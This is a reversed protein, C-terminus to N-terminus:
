QTDDIRSNQAEKKRPLPSHPFQVQGSSDVAPYSFTSSPSPLYPRRLTYRVRQRPPYYPSGNIQIRVPDRAAVVSPQRLTHQAHYPEQQPQPGNVFQIQMPDPAAAPHMRLTQSANHIAWPSGRTPIMVNRPQQPLMVSNMDPLGGAAPMPFSINHREPTEPSYHLAFNSMPPSSIQMKTLQIKQSVVDPLKVTPSTRHGFSYYPMNESANGFHMGTLRESATPSRPQEPTLTQMDDDTDGFLDEIESGSISFSSLVDSTPDLIVEFHKSMHVQELSSAAVSDAPSDVSVQEQSLFRDRCSVSDRSESNVSLPNAFDFKSNSPEENPM